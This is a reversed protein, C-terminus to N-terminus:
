DYFLMPRQTKEVLDVVKEAFTKGGKVVFDALETSFPAIGMVAAAGAEAAFSNAHMLVWAAVVEITGETIAEKLVRNNTMTSLYSGVGTVVAPFFPGLGAIIEGISRSAHAATDLLDLLDEEESM